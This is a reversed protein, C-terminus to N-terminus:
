AKPKRRSWYKPRRKQHAVAAIWIVEHLEVYYVTYPFRRFRRKKTGQDDIAMTIGPMQQIREIADEFDLRFERGLGARQSEYYTIAELVEDQAREHISLPKL